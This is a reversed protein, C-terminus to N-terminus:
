VIFVKVKIIILICDNLAVFFLLVNIKMEVNIALVNNKKIFGNSKSQRNQSLEQETVACVAQLQELKKSVSGVSKRLGELENEQVIKKVEM